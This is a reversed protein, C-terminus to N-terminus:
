SLTSGEQFLTPSRRSGRNWLRARQEQIQIWGWLEVAERDMEVMRATTATATHVFGRKATM